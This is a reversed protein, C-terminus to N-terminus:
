YDEGYDENYETYDYDDFNRKSSKIKSKNYNDLYEFSEQINNDYEEQLRETLKDQSERDLSDFFTNADIPNYSTTTIEYVDIIEINQYSYESPENIGDVLADVLYDNYEGDDGSVSWEIRVNANRSLVPEKAM